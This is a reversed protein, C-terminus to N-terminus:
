TIGLHHVGKKSFDPDVGSLTHNICKQGFQFNRLDNMSVFRIEFVIMILCQNLKFSFYM